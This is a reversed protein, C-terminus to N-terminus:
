LLVKNKVIKGVSVAIDIFIDIGIGVVTFVSVAQDNVVVAEAFRFAVDFLGDRHGALFTIFFDHEGRRERFTETQVIFRIVEHHQM